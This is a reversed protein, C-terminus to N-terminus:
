MMIFGMGVDHLRKVRQRMEAMTYAYSTNAGFVGVPIAPHADWIGTARRFGGDAPPAPHPVTLRYHVFPAALFIPWAVALASVQAAQKATAPPKNPRGPGNAAPWAIAAQVPGPAGVVVSVLHTVPMAM